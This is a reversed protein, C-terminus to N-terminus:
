KKASTYLSPKKDQMKRGKRGKGKVKKRGKQGVDGVRWEKDETRARVPKV